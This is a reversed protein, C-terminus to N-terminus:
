PDQALSMWDVTRDFNTRATAVIPSVCRAKLETANSNVSLDNSDSGFHIDNLVIGAVNLRDRFTSATILTQLTQNIVGITNPAVVILPFGFDYALDAVYDDESIPSMLGGIGEVLIIESRDRWFALGSRLLEVDVEKGEARAALHPALPAAFRQPCVDEITAPRGAADWLVFPDDTDNGICGSAAPKYVGVRQGAAVLQKAILATVYTKGVNTDTGIIFLGPTPM